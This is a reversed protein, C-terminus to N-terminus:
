GTAGGGGKGGINFHKFSIISIDRLIYFYLILPPFPPRPFGETPALSGSGCPGFSLSTIVVLGIKINRRCYSLVIGRRTMQFLTPTIQVGM